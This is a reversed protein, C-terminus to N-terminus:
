VYRNGTKVNYNPMIFNCLCKGDNAVVGVFNWSCIWWTHSHLRNGDIEWIHTQRGAISVKKWEASQNAASLSVWDWCVSGHFWYNVLRRDWANAIVLSLFGVNIRCCWPLSTICLCHNMEYLWNSYNGLTIMLIMWYSTARFVIIQFIVVWGINVLWCHM